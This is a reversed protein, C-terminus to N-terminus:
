GFNATKNTRFLIGHTYIVLTNNAVTLNLYKVKGSYIRKDDDHLISSQDAHQLHVNFVKFLKQVVFAM